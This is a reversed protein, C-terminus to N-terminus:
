SVGIRGWRGGVFILLGSVSSLPGSVSSLLGSVSNLPRNTTKITYTNEGTEAFDDESISYTAGINVEPVVHVDLVCCGQLVLYLIDGHFIVERM